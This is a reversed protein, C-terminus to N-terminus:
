NKAKFGIERRYLHTPIGFAMTEPVQETVKKKMDSEIVSVLSM